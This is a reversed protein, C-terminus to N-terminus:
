QGLTAIVEYDVDQFEAPMAPDRLAFRIKIAKPWASQNHHTWLVRYVSSGGSQKGDYEPTYFNAPDNLSSRDRNEWDNDKPHLNGSIDRGYWNISGGSTNGDTWMISLASCGTTAVQWLLNIDTMTDPPVRLNNVQGTFSNHNIIIDNVQLRTYGQLTCFDIGWIDTGTGPTTTLVWAPRWLIRNNSNGPDAQNPVQGYCIFAGTGRTNGTVSHAIGATTLLMRPTTDTSSTDTIGLVGNKSASRLDLRIMEAINAAAGNSRIRAEAVNVVKQSQSLVMSVMTIMLVMIVVSVLIEILTFGHAKHRHRIM